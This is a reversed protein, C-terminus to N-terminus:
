AYPTQWMKLPNESPPQTTSFCFLGKPCGSFLSQLVEIVDDSKYPEHRTDSSILMDQQIEDITFPTPALRPAVFQGQLRPDGIKFQSSNIVPFYNTRNSAVIKGNYYITYRRGERVITLHVWKQEPFDALEITEYAPTPSQTLISLQTKPKSSAGGPLMQLKLTSGIELITIPEQSNGIEPTKSNVACFLYVMLTSGSPVLFKDRADGPAGIHTSINMKGQKPALSETLSPRVTSLIMYSAVFTVLALTILAVLISSLEM